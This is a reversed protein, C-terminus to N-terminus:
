GFAMARWTCTGGENVVIFEAFNASNGGTGILWSGSSGEFETGVSPSCYCSVTHSGGSVKRVKVLRGVNAATPTPFKIGFSAGTADASVAVDTGGLVYAATQYTTNWVIPGQAGGSYSQLAGIIKYDAGDSQLLVAELTTGYAALFAGLQLTNAGEITGGSLVQITILHANITDRRIAYMNSVGAGNPISVTYGSGANNCIVTAPGSSVVSTAGSVTTEAWNGSGGGGGSPTAWAPAGGVVTLVQGSSGIPLGSWKPTGNAVVLDGAVPTHAVTDSDVAGDLLAHSGGASGGVVNLTVDVRNHTANDVATISAINTGAVFNLTAEPGVPAGGNVMVAIKAGVATITGQGNQGSLQSGAVVISHASRSTYILTVWDGASPPSQPQFAIETLYIANGQVDSAGVDVTCTHQLADVAVVQGSTYRRDSRASASQEDLSKSLSM